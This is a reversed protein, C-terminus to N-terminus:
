CAGTVPELALSSLGRGNARPNVLLIAVSSKGAARAARARARSSRRNRDGLRRFDVGRDGSCVGSCRIPTSAARGSGDRAASIPVVGDLRKPRRQGQVRCVGDGGIQEFSTRLRRARVGVAACRAVVPKAARSNAIIPVSDVSSAAVASPGRISASKSAILVELVAARITSARCRM